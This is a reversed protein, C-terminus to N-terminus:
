DCNCRRCQRYPQKGLFTTKCKGENGFAVCDANESKCRFGGLPCRPDVNPGIHEVECEVDNERPDSKGLSFLVGPLLPFTSPLVGNLGVLLYQQFGHPQISIAGDPIAAQIDQPTAFPGGYLRVYLQGGLVRGTNLDVQMYTLNEPVEQFSFPGLMQSQATGRDELVQYLVTTPDGTPLLMGTTTGELSRGTDAGGDISFLTGGETVRAHYTGPVTLAARGFFQSALQCLAPDPMEMEQLLALDGLDIVGSADLDPDLGSEPDIAVGALSAFIGEPKRPVIIFNVTTSKGRAVDAELLATRGDPAVAEVVYTGPGLDAFCYRGNEDSVTGMGATVLNILVGEGNEIAVDLGDADTVDLLVTGTIRGVRQDCTPDAPIGPGSVCAEFLLFDAQDIDRDGDGDFHGCAIQDFAGTLDDEGTYCLQFAGFDELDADNDGTADAFVGGCLDAAHVAGCILALIAAGILYV